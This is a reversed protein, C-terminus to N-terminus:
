KKVEMYWKLLSVNTIWTNLMDFVLGITLISFIQALEASFSKVVILAGLFAFFSTLSMTLGTKMSEFIRKNLSGESRKMMRTTLLIDTDVSYGILMLFAIIGATSMKFGFIDFTVLAMLIDGFASLIVALSPAATRFIIFVAIAMFIFAILVAIMLQKYFTQGFSSGTTVIDANQGNILKYGVYNEIATKTENLGATTTVEVGKEQGTTIEYLERVDVESLTASLNAKLQAPNIAKYVTISTGGTLSVDKKIFDGTHAHFNILFAFSFLFLIAPIILLLKYNRDHWNKEAM